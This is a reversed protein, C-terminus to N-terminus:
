TNQYMCKTSLDSSITMLLFKKSIDIGIFLIYDLDIFFNYCFLFKVLGRKLYEVEDSGIIHICFSHIAIIFIFLLTQYGYNEELSYNDRPDIIELCKYQIVATRRIDIFYSLSQENTKDPKGYIFLPYYCLSYNSTFLISVCRLHKSRALFLRSRILFQM